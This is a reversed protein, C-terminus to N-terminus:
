LKHIQAAVRRWLDCNKSNISIREALIAEKLEDM